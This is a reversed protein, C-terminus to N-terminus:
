SSDHLSLPAKEVEVSIGINRILEIDEKMSSPSIEFFRALEAKSFTNPNSLIRFLLRVIREARTM